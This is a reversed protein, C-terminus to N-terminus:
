NDPRIYVGGGDTPPVLKRPPILNVKTVKMGKNDPEILFFTENYIKEKASKSTIAILDILSITHIKQFDEISIHKVNKTATNYTSFAADAEGPYCKCRLVYIKLPNEIETTFMRDKIPVSTTDLLYYISDRKIKTIQANSDDISFITLLLIYIIRTKM